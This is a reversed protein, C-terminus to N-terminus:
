DTKKPFADRMLPFRPCSVPNYHFVLIDLNLKVVNKLFSRTWYHWHLYMEQLSLVIIIDVDCAGLNIRSFICQIKKQFLKYNFSCHQNHKKSQIRLTCGEERRASVNKLKLHSAQPSAPFSSNVLLLMDHHAERNPQSTVRTNKIM